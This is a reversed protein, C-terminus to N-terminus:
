MGDVVFQLQKTNGVAYGLRNIFKWRVENLLSVWVEGENHVETCSSGNLWSSVPFACDPLVWGTNADAATRPDHPRNNPGGTFSYAAYPFRRIGYYTNTT